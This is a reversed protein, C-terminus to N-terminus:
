VGLQIATFHVQPPSLTRPRAPGPRVQLKRKYAGHEEELRRRLEINQQM